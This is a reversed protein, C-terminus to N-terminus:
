PHSLELSNTALTHSQLPLIMDASRIDGGLVLPARGDWKQVAELQILSPSKRLAAGRLQISQAEGQARIVATQADITTKQQVFKAKNAEQEQVMKLEIAAELQPSLVIDEIVLDEIKLIPGVKQQTIELTSTKVIERKQVIVEATKMATVEKLAEQVRPAILATFPDGYYDQFITVVSEQPIRYLVRVRAKVQQLDSSYCNADLERTQQRIPIQEVASIFPAKFGFGEPEFVSSVQGLTVRVGRHGPEVVFTSQSAAIIILFIVAAGAILMFLTKQSM